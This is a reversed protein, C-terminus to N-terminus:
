PLHYRRRIWSKGERALPVGLMLVCVSLVIVQLMLELQDVTQYVLLAMRLLACSMGLAVIMLSWGNWRDSPLLGVTLLAIGALLADWKLGPGWIGAVILGLGLITSLIRRFVTFM